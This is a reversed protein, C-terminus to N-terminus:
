RNLVLSQAAADQDLLWLLHGHRPNVGQAPCQIPDWDDGWVRAVAQAKSSGTVLFIVKAAQNIVHYTLTLRTPPPKPAHNVVAVLQEDPPTLAPHGPFLSATHGDPGMGLLILDFRPPGPAFFQRLTQTYQRAAAAPTVGTTPMPYINTPPIPLYSLFTEQAMRWMNDPDDPPVFREDGWFLYVNKWDVQDKLPAQALLRYMAEPTSGGSLAVSFRGQAAIIQGALTVFRNAAEIALAEPNELVLFQGSM